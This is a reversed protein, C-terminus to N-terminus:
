DEKYAALLGVVILAIPIVSWWGFWFLNLLVGLVITSISLYKSSTM